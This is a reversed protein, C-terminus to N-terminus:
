APPNNESIGPVTFDAGGNSAIERNELENTVDNENQTGNTPENLPSSVGRSNDSQTRIENENVDDENMRENCSENESASSRENEFVYHDVSDNENDTPRRTAVDTWDEKRPEFVEYEFDVEWSITYLYEQPKVIENDPHIRFSLCALGGTNGSPSKQHKNIQKLNYSM